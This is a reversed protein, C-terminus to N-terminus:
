AISLGPARGELPRTKWNTHRKWLYHAYLEFTWLGAWSPTRSELYLRNQKRRWYRTLAWHPYWLLSPVHASCKLFQHTEPYTPALTLPPFFHSLDFGQHDSFECSQLLEHLPFTLAQLQSWCFSSLPNPSSEKHPVCPPILLHLAPEIGRVSHPAGDRLSVLVGCSVKPNLSNLAPTDGPWRCHSRLHGLPSLPLPLSEMRPDRNPPSTPWKWASCIGCEWVSFKYVAM